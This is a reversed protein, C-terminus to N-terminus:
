VHWRLTPPLLMVNFLNPLRGMPVSDAVKWYELNKEGGSASEVDQLPYNLRDNSHGCLYVTPREDPHQLNRYVETVIMAHHAYDTGEPVILVLDGWWLENASCPSARGSLALYRRFEHAVSWTMSCANADSWWATSEFSHGWSITWGGALLAQSVFNTCDGGFVKRSSYDQFLPNRKRAWELAYQRTLGRRFISSM